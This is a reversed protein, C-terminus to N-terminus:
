LLLLSLMVKKKFVPDTIFVLKNLIFTYKVSECKYIYMVSTAISKCILATM